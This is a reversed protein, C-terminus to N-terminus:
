RLVIQRLNKKKDEILIKSGEDNADALFKETGIADRIVETLTVHRKNALEKVADVLDKPLNVTVKVVDSMPRIRSKM